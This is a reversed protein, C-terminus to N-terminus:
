HQRRPICEHVKNMRRRVRKLRAEYEGHRGSNCANETIPLAPLISTEPSVSVSAFPFIQYKARLGQPEVIIDFLTSPHESSQSASGPAKSQIHIAPGSSLKVHSQTFPDPYRGSKLVGRPLSLHVELALCREADLDV